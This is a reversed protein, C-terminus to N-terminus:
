KLPQLSRAVKAADTFRAQKTPSDLFIMNIRNGGIQTEMILCFGSENIFGTKQTLVNMSGRRVIPNSNIFTMGNFKYSKHTSYYRIEKMKSAYTLLRSLDSPTSINKPNLGNADVYTTNIMGLEKAKINMMEIGKHFGGPYSRMLANASRNESSQLMLIYADRKNMTTGVKVRSWTHKIKDVDETSITIKGYKNKAEINVVATMLKTISAIPTKKNSNKEMLIEETELNYVLYQNSQLHLSQSFTNSSILLLIAFLIKIM